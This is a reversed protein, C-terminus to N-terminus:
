EKSISLQVHIQGKNDGYKGPVDNMMFYATEGPKLEFYNQAGYAKCQKDKGIVVLAALPAKTCVTTNSNFNPDGNPSLYGKAHGPVGVDSNDEPIALWKDTAVAEYSVKVYGNEKNTWPTGKTSDAYVIISESSSKTVPPNSPISTTVAAILLVLGFITASFRVWRNSITATVEAGFLKFNGGLFGILIFVGGLVLLGISISVPM